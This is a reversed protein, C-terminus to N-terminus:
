RGNQNGRQASLHPELPFTSPPRPASPQTIPLLLTTSSPRRPAPPERGLPKLPCIALPKSPGQPWSVPKHLNLLVHARKQYFYDLSPVLLNQQQKTKTPHGSGLGKGM